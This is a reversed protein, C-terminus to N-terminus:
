MRILDPNVKPDKFDFVFSEGNFESGAAKPVDAIKLRM